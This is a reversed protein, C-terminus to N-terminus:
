KDCASEKTNQRQKAEYHKGTVFVSVLGTVGACGIVGGALQAGLLATIGGVLTTIIGISFGFAQGKRQYQRGARMDEIDDGYEAIIYPPPMPGSFQTLQAALVAANGGNQTSSTTQNGIKEQDNESQSM